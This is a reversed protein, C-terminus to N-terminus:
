VRSAVHNGTDFLSSIFGILQIKRIPTATAQV